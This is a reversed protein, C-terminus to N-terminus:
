EKKRTSDLTVSSHHRRLHALMNSTNGCAYTVLKVCHKCVTVTKDVLKKGSEDYTVPFGFHEWVPSRFSAAPANEM